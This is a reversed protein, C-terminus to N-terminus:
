LVVRPDALGPGQGAVAFVAGSLPAEALAAAEMGERATTVYLTTLDPGGFAPCSTQPADIAVERLFTGDPAYVAVRASGWQANWVNGAADVTAGDPYTETGTFDLFIEPAAAPWGEADLKVRWVKQAGTDAFYALTGDPAFCIANPISLGPFLARLEGRYYRYITGEGAKPGAKKMTSIWFGGQRDTKGDNSRMEPRDAELAVLSTEAGTTLDFLFLDRESAILLRNEDVVGMASVMRDFAWERGPTKLRANLIDFWFVEGRLANWIVGEGLENLRDDFIM